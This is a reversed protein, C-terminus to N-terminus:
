VPLNREVIRPLVSYTKGSANMLVSGALNKEAYVLDGAPDTIYYGYITNPTLAGTCTFTRAVEEIQAYGDGNLFADGWTNVAIAAYGTFNAQTFNAVTSTPIPDYDNQYLRLTCTNLFAKHEQLLEVLYPQCFVLVM